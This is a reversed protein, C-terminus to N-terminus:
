SVSIMGDEGMSYVPEDVDPRPDTDTYILNEYTDRLEIAPPFMYVRQIDEYGMLRFSQSPPIEPILRAIIGGMANKTSNNRGTITTCSKLYHAYLDSVIVPTVQTDNLRIETLDFRENADLVGFKILDFIFKEHSPLTNYAQLDLWKTHPPNKLISWDDNDPVWQMLEDLFAENGGNAMEDLMKGFFVTDKLRTNTVELVFFRREDFSVPVVWENNSLIVIRCYNEIFDTDVGKKTLAKKKGTIMTKLQGEAQHNGAWVAEEMSCLLRERFHANFGGFVQEKDSLSILLDGMINGLIEEFLISKGTGRKGILVFASGPIEGPKQFLHAMWTMIFHYYEDDSHCINEYLHEYLLSWKGASSPKMPFGRWLNYAEVECTQSPDFVQRSYTARNQKGDPEAPWDWWLKTLKFQKIEDGDDAWVTENSFMDDFAPRKWINIKDKNTNRAHLKIIARPGEPTNLVGWRENCQKLTELIGPDGYIKSLNIGASNKPKHKKVSATLAGKAEIINLGYKEKLQRSVEGIQVADLQAIGIAESLQSFDENSLKDRGDFWNSIVVSIDEIKGKVEFSNKNVKKKRRGTEAADASEVPGSAEDVLEDDEFEDIYENLDDENIGFDDMIMDLWILRDNLHDCGDHSCYLAFTDFDGYDFNQAVFGTASEMSHSDINPCPVSVKGADTIVTDAPDFYDSVFDAARFGNGNNAIWRKLWPNKYEYNEDKNGSSSSMGESGAASFPNDAVVARQSKTNFRQITELDLAKGNILECRFEADKKHRPLYFLRSPDVTKKDYDANMLNGVGAYRERWEVMGAAHGGERDAFVFPKDLVLVVRYKHMPPHSIICHVGGKIHENIAVLEAEDLLGPWYRKHDRLYDLIDNLTIDGDLPTGIRTFYKTIQDSVIKTETGGHSHTTYIVAFLGRDMIKKRMSEIPEGTDIDLGLIYNARVNKAVRQEDVLAGQTFSKGDKSGVTHKLIHPLFEHLKMPASNWKIADTRTGFSFEMERKLLFEINVDGYEFVNEFGDLPTGEINKNTM